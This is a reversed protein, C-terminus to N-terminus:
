WQYSLSLVRSTGFRPVGTVYYTVAPLLYQPLDPHLLTLTDETTNHLSQLLIPTVLTRLLHAPLENSLGILDV